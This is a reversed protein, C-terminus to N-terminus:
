KMETSAYNAQGASIKCMESVQKAEKLVTNSDGKKAAEQAKKLSAEAPTWLTFSAKAAKADAEAQALAKQAEETLAPKAAEAPKAPMAEAQKAPTGGCAALFLCLLGALAAPTTFITKM